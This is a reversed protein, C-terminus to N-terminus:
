LGMLSGYKEQGANTLTDYIAQRESKSLGDLAIRIGREAEATGGMNFLNDLTKEFNGKPRDPKNKVEYSAKLSEQQEAKAKDIRRVMNEFYPQLVENDFVYLNPKISYDKNLEATRPIWLYARGAQMESKMLDNVGWPTKMDDISDTGPKDPISKYMDALNYVYGVVRLRPFRKSADNIGKLCIESFLREVFEKTVQNPQIHGFMGHIDDSLLLSWDFYVEEINSCVWPKVLASIGTGKVHYQGTNNEIHQRAEMLNIEKLEKEVKLSNSKIGTIPRYYHVYVGKYTIFVRKINDPSNRSKRVTEEWKPSKVAVKGEGMEAIGDVRAYIPVGDVRPQHVRSQIISDLNIKKIKEM